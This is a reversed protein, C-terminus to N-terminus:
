EQKTDKIQDVAMTFSQLPHKALFAFKGILEERSPLDALEQVFDADKWEWDVWWWVYEFGYGRKENDWMRKYKALAKLADNEEGYMYLAVVPGELKDLEVEYGKEQMVMHFVRKKVVVLKWENDAIDMRVQNIDNVPIGHQKLMVVNNVGQLNNRYDEALNEKQKRTLAM